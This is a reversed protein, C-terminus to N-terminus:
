IIGPLPGFNYYYPNFLPSYYNPVAAAFSYPEYLPYPSPLYLSPPLGYSYPYYGGDFNGPYVNFNTM